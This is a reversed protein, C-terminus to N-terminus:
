APVATTGVKVPIRKSQLQHQHIAAPSDIVPGILENATRAAAQVHECAHMLSMRICHAPEPQKDHLAM